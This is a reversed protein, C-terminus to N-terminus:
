SKVTRNASRARRMRAFLVWAFVGIVLASCISLEIETLGFASGRSAVVTVTDM